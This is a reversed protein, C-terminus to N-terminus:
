MVLNRPQRKAVRVKPERWLNEILNLDPSQSTWQQVIIHKKKLWEKTAKNTHMPDNDLSSYGDVVLNWDDRMGKIRHLQGTGTASFCGLAYRTSNIGFLKLKTEDSWLVKVWNEESDSAFKLHDKAKKLLPVKRTSCYKLLECRLTNGFTKKTAMTGAAKIDNVLDERTTRPQNRVTRTIM